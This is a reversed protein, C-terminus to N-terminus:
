RNMCTEVLAGGTAIIGRVSVFPPYMGSIYICSTVQRENLTEALEHVSACGTMTYLYLM